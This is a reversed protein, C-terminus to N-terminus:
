HAVTFAIIKKAGNQKLIKRAENLTAGTTTVDDILIINRGKIKESNKISFSDVINKLRENRNEIQAQHKTDKLKVLVNNEICFNNANDIKIIKKCIIESQNFGREHRRKPALPIPILIPKQFNELMSLDALEEIIRGYLVEAFIGALRFKGQYKLLWIARKIPPHRYDYLPFIWKASERGAEPSEELCKLCFDSGNKGCSLCYVPFIINLITNLFNMYSVIILM